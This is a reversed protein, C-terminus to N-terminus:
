FNCCECRTVFQCNVDRIAVSVENEDENNGENNGDSNGDNNGDNPVDMNVYCTEECAIYEKELTETSGTNNGSTGAIILKDITDMSGTKNEGAKKRIEAEHRDLLEQLKTRVSESQKKYVRKLGFLIIATNVIILLMVPVMFGLVMGKELSMWCYHKIEYQEM